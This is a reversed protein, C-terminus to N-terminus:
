SLTLTKRLVQPRDLVSFLNVSIKVFVVVVVVLVHGLSDKLDKLVIQSRSLKTSLTVFCKRAFNGSEFGKKM